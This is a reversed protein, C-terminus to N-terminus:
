SYPPPGAPLTAIPAILLDAASGPPKVTAFVTGV